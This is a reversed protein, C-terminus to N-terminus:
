VVKFYEAYKKGSEDEVMDTVIKMGSDRLDKIRAALRFIGYEMLADLPTILKGDDLHKKLQKVQSM